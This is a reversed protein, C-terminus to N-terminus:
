APARPVATPFGYPFTAIGAVVPQHDLLDLWAPCTSL